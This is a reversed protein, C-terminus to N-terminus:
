IKWKELQKRFGMMEMNERSSLNRKLSAKRWFWLRDNTAQAFLALVGTMWASQSYNILTCPLLIPILMDVCTPLPIKTSLVGVSTSLNLDLSNFYKKLSIEAVLIRFQQFDFPYLNFVNDTIFFLSQLSCIQYMIPKKFIFKSFNSTMSSKV